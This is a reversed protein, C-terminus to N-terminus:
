IYYNDGIVLDIFGTNVNKSHHIKNVKVKLLIPEISYDNELLNLKNIRFYPKNNAPYKSNRKYIPISYM